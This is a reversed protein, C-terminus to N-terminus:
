LVSLVTIFDELTKFQKKQNEYIVTFPQDSNDILINMYSFSDVKFINTKKSGTYNDVIISKTITKCLGSLLEFYFESPKKYENLRIEISIIDFKSCVFDLAESLRTLDIPANKTDEYPTIYLKIKQKSM